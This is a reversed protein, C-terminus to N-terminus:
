LYGDGFASNPSSHDGCDSVNGVFYYIYTLIMLHDTQGVRVSLSYYVASFGYIGFPLGYPLVTYM